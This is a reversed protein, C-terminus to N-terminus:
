STSWHIKVVEKRDAVDLIARSISLTSTWLSTQSELSVPGSSFFFFFFDTCHHFNPWFLFQFMQKPLFICVLSPLSFQFLPFQISFPKWWQFMLVFLGWSNLVAFHTRRLCQLFMELRKQEYLITGSYKRGQSFRQFQFPQSKQKLRTFPQFPFLILSLRFSITSCWFSHM